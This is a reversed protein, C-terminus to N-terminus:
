LPDYESSHVTVRKWPRWDSESPIMHGIGGYIIFISRPQSKKQSLSFCWEALIGSIWWAALVLSAWLALAPLLVQQVLESM